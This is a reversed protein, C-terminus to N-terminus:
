EGFQYGLRVGIEDLGQNRGTGLVQGHSLHEFLVQVEWPGAVDRTLGLSWRFLDESGLLVHEAAFVPAEPAGGPYPNDLEGDHIVYGVGPEFAWGEAFEWRWELGFGAFSTDGATNASAVLYPQPSGAWTLFSPSDFSVQFEINPGEEKNAAKCDDICINHQMVGIHIEDVGAQASPALAMVAALAAIGAAAGRM